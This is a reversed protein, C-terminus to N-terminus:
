ADKREELYEILMDIYEKAKKLDEIGNKFKYRWVYKIVNGACFGEFGTLASSVAKIVKICEIGAFCYHNPHKVNDM